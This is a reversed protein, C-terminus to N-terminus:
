PHPKLKGGVEIWNTVDRGYADTSAPKVPEVEPNFVDKPIQAPFLESPKKPETM